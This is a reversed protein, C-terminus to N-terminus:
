DLLNLLTKRLNASGLKIKPKNNSNIADDLSDILNQINEKESYSISSNDVINKADSIISYADNKMQQLISDQEDQIIQEEYQKIAKKIEYESMKNPSELTLSKENGTTM